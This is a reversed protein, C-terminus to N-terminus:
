PLTRNNEIMKKHIKGNIKMTHSQILNTFYSLKGNETIRLCVYRQASESRSFSDHSTKM